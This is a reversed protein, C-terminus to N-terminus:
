KNYPGIPCICTPFMFFYRYNWDWHICNTKDKLTTIIQFIGAFM